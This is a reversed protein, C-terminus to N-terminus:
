KLQQLLAHIEERRGTDARQRGPRAPAALAKDLLAKARTNDGKELLFAAYFYNSDIGDPNIALAQEFLKQAKEDSGFGLPWGPVQHYLTALSTLASGNLASADQEIAAEFLTRARKVLKLAGLGGTAGAQSSLVIGQWIMLEPAHPQVTLQEALQIALNDFADAQADEDLSYQIEAWRQQFPLLQEPTAAQTITACGLTITLLATRIHTTLIM